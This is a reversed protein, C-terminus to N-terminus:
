RYLSSLANKGVKSPHELFYHKYKAYTVHWQWIFTHHMTYVKTKPQELLLLPICWDRSDGIGKEKNLGKPTLSPASVLFCSYPLLPCQLVSSLYSFIFLLVPGLRPLILNRSESELLPFQSKGLPLHLHELGLFPIQAEPDLIEVNLGQNHGPYSLHLLRSDLSEVICVYQHNFGISLLTLAREAGNQSALLM